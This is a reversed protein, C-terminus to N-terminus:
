DLKADLLFQINLESIIDMLGEPCYCTDFTSKKFLSKHFTLIIPPFYFERPTYKKIDNPPMWLRDGPVGLNILFDISEETYSEFYPINIKDLITLLQNEKHSIDNERGEKFNYDVFISYFVSDTNEQNKQVFHWLFYENEKAIRDYDKITIIEKVM